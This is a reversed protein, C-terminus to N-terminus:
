TECRRPSAFDIDIEFDVSADSKHGGYSIDYRDLANFATHQYTHM